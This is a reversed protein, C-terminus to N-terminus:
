GAQVPDSVWRRVVALLDEKRFPKCLYDVAGAERAKDRVVAEPMASLMVVPIGELGPTERMLESATAGDLGPMMIDMLVLAPPDKRAASVAELASHVALTRYGASRLLFAASDAIARTDDCVLIFPAGM